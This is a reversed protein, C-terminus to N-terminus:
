HGLEFALRRAFGRCIDRVIWEIATKKRAPILLVVVFCVIHEFLKPQFCLVFVRIIEFAKDLRRAGKDM